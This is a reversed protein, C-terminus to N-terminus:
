RWGRGGGEERSRIRITALIEPSPSTRLAKFLFPFGRQSAEKSRFLILVDDFDLLSSLRHISSISQYAVIHM